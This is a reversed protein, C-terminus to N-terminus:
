AKLAGVLVWTDTARQILTVAEWQANIKLKSGESNITVGSGAAITTEGADTQIVDIKTGVPFAVSSNPPVTLTQASGSGMEVLKEADALALTYSGAQANISINPLQAIAIKASGDLGAVGNNANVEAKLVADNAIEANVFATTAVQTTSTEVAATPATPTGSLAPSDLATTSPLGVTGTFTPSDTPALTKTGNPLTIVGDPTVIDHDGVELGNKVKFNKDAM